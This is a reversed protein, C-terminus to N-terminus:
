LIVESGPNECRRTIEARVMALNQTDRASDEPTRRLANGPGLNWQITGSLQALQADDFGRLKARWARRKRAADRARKCATSWRLHANRVDRDQARKARMLAMNYEDRADALSVRLDLYADALTPAPM